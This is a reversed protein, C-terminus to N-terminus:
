TPSLLSASFAFVTLNRDTHCMLILQFSVSVGQVVSLRPPRCHLATSRNSHTLLRPAVFGTPAPSALRHTASVIARRRRSQARGDRAGRIATWNAAEEFRFWVARKGGTIRVRKRDRWASRFF